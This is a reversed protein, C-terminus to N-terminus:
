KNSLEKVAEILVGILGNYNISLGNENKSVLEPFVKQLEQAIVGASKEDTDKWTFNVGRLQNIKEVANEITHINKKLNEDPNPVFVLFDELFKYKKTSRLKRLLEYNAIEEEKVKKLIESYTLGNYQQSDTIEIGEEPIKIWKLHVDAPKDLERNVATDDKRFTDELLSRAEQKTQPNNKTKM